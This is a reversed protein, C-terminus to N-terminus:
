KRGGFWRSLVGKSLKGEEKPRVIRSQSQTAPQSSASHTETQTRTAAQRPQPEPQRWQYESTADTTGGFVEDSSSPRYLTPVAVTEQYNAPEVKRAVVPMPRPAQTAAPVTMVPQGIQQRLRDERQAVIQRQKADLMQQYSQQLEALQARLADSEQCKQQYQAEFQAFKAELRRQADDGEGISTVRSDGASPVYADRQGAGMRAQQMQLTALQEIVSRLQSVQLELNRVDNSRSSSEWPPVLPCPANRPQNPICSEDAQAKGEAGQAAQSEVMVGAPVNGGASLMGFQAATGPVWPAQSAAVHMSASRRYQLLSPLQLTPLQLNFEPIRLGLGRIGFGASEGEFEGVAPAQVYAGPPAAQAEAALGEKPQCPRYCPQECACTPPYPVCAADCRPDGALAVAEASALVFTAIYAMRRM